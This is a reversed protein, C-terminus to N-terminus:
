SELRTKVFEVQMFCCASTDGAHFWQNLSSEGPKVDNIGRKQEKVNM